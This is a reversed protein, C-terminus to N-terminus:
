IATQPVVNGGSSVFTQLLATSVSETAPRTRIMQIPRSDDSDNLFGASEDGSLTVYNPLLSSAKAVSM